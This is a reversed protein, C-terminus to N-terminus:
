SSLDLQICLSANMHFERQALLEETSMEVGKVEESKVSTGNGNGNSPKAEKASEKSHSTKDTGVSDKSDKHKLSPTHKRESKITVECPVGDEDDSAPEDVVGGDEDHEGRKALKHVGMDQSEFKINKLAVAPIFEATYHLTGKVHGVDQRLPSSFVKIGNSKFPYRCDEPAPSPLALDSIVLETSGLPRDKTLHQYDMCELM